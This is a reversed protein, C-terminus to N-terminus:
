VGGSRGTPKTHPHLPHVSAELQCRAASHVILKRDNSHRNALCTCTGARVEELLRNISRIRNLVQGASVADIPHTMEGLEAATLLPLVEAASPLVEAAPAPSQPRLPLMLGYAAELAEQVRTRAVAVQAATDFAVWPSEPVVTNAEGM